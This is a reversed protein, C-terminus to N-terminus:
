FQIQLTILIDDLAFIRSVTISTSV